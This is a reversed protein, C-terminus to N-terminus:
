IRRPILFAKMAQLHGGSLVYQLGLDTPPRGVGAAEFKAARNSTGFLSEFESKSM